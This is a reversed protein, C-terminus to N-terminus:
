SIMVNIPIANKHLKSFNHVTQLSIFLFSHFPFVGIYRCITINLTSVQYIVDPNFFTDRLLISPELPQYSASMRPIHPRLLSHGIRFAAAAFESMISPNCEDSYGSIRFSQKSTKVNKVPFSYAVLRCGFLFSRGKYYQGTPELSIGYLNMANHGLIRPLFENYVIHQYEAILVRRAEQYLHEDDWHPNLFRLGDALRNHERM